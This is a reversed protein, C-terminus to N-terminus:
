GRGDKRTSAAYLVERGTPFPAGRWLLWTITPPVLSLAVLFATTSVGVNVGMAMICAALVVVATFWFGVLGNRSIAKLM